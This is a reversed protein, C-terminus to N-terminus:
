TGGDHGSAARPQGARGAVAGGLGALKMGPGRTKNHAFKSIFRWGGGGGGGRGWTDARWLKEM